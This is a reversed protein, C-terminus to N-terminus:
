PSSLMGGPTGYSHTKIFEEDLRIKATEITLSGGGPMADRTNTALNMLVQEIQSGDAMVMLEGTLVAKLTIDEGILRALFKQMRGVIENLDIPRPDLM